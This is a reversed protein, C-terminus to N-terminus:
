RYQKIKKRKWLGNALIGLGVVSWLLWATGDKENATAYAVGGLGIVAIVGGEQIRSKATRRSTEIKLMDALILPISQEEVGRERLYNEPNFNKGSVIKQKLCDIVILKNDVIAKNM